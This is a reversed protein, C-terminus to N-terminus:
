IWEWDELLPDVILIDRQWFEKFDLQTFGDLTIGDHNFLNAPFALIEDEVSSIQEKLDTFTLLGSVTVSKGMFNNEIKHVSVMQNELRNVIDAAILELCSFASVSTILRLPKARKKLDKLFRRRKLKWNDLLLRLMGIGNELQPYDGYYDSEPVPLNAHVYLEDACYCIEHGTARLADVRSIIGAAERSTPLRLHTLHRRYKTLGVPVIGISLTNLQPSLLERLSRDLEDGDNWGPIVVIQLHFQIGSRSLKQLAPLIDFDTQYGMLSKRLSAHTTHVSIYLPSLKQRMIRQFDSKTLNTLSIYNGFVFSYLYDDDKLYLSKRLHPPMQDVFCFICRNQCVAIRHAEPEIGLAIGDQRVLDICRITGTRNLVELHLLEAASYFQLDIFDNVAHGNITLLKDGGALGAKAAPSRPLVTQIVLPM